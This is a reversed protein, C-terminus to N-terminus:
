EIQGIVRLDIKLFLNLFFDSLEFFNLYLNIRYGIQDFLWSSTFLTLHALFSKLNKRVQM